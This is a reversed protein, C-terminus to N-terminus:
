NIRNIMKSIMEVDLRKTNRIADIELRTLLTGLTVVRAIDTESDCKNPICVYNRIQPVVYGQKRLERKLCRIHEVNQFYPNYFRTMYSGSFGFWIKDNISGKIKTRYRKAEICYIGFETVLIMDIQTKKNLAFSWISKNQIINIKGPLRAYLARVIFDEFDEGIKYYNMHNLNDCSERM